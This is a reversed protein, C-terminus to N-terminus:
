QHLTISHHVPKGSDDLTVVAYYFNRNTYMGLLTTQYLNLPVSISFQEEVEFALKNSQISLFVYEDVGQINPSSLFLVSYLKVSKELNLDFSEANGIPNFTVNLSSSNLVASNASVPFGAFPVIVNAASPLNNEFLKYTLRTLYNFANLGDDSEAEWIIKLDNINIVAKAYLASLKFRQRRAISAEDMGPMFSIPRSVLYNRGRSIRGTINGISGSIKGLINGKLEAM